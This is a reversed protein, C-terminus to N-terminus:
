FSWLKYISHVLDTQQNTLNDRRLTVNSKKHAHLFENSLHTEM